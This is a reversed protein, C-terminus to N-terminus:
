APRPSRPSMRGSGVASARTGSKKTAWEERGRHSWGYISNAFNGENGVGVRIWAVERALDDKSGVGRERGMLASMM